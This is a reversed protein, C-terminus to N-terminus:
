HQNGPMDAQPPDGDAPIGRQALARAVSLVDDRGQKCGAAWAATQESLRSAIAKAREAEDRWYGVREEQRARFQSMEEAARGVALQWAAVAGIVLGALGALVYMEAGGGSWPV